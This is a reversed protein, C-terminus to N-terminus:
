LLLNILENLLKLLKKLWGPLWDGLLDELSDKATKADEGADDEDQETLAISQDLAALTANVYQLELVFPDLVRKDLHTFAYEVAIKAQDSLLEKIVSSVATVLHVAGPRKASQRKSARKSLLTGVRTILEVYEDLPTAM